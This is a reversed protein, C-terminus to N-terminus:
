AVFHFRTIAYKERLPKEIDIKKGLAQCNRKAHLISERDTLLYNKWDEFLSNEV